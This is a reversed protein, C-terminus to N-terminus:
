EKSEVLENLIVIGLQDVPLGTVQEPSLSIM